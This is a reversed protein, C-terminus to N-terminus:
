EAAERLMEAKKKLLKERLVVVSPDSRIRDITAQEEIEADRLYAHVEDRHRFYYSLTGYVDALDLQYDDAIADPTEGMFFRRMVTELTVRTQGIRAVNTADVRIPHELNHLVLSTM